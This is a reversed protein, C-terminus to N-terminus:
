LSDEGNLCVHYGVVWPERHCVVSMVSPFQVDGIDLYVVASRVHTLDVRIWHSTLYMGHMWGALNEARIQGCELCYREM